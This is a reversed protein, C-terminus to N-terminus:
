KSLTGFRMNMRIRRSGVYMRVTQQASPSGPAVFVVTFVLTQGPSLPGDTMINNIVDYPITYNYGTYYGGVNIIRFGETRVTYDYGASTIKPTDGYNVKVSRFFMYDGTDALKSGDIFITSTASGVNLGAEYVPASNNGSPRLLDNAIVPDSFDLPITFVFDSIPTVLYFRESYVVSSPNSSSYTLTSSSFNEFTVIDNNTFNPNYIQNNSLNVPGQVTLIVPNTYQIQVDFYDNDLGYDYSAASFKFTLTKDINVPNPLKYICRYPIELIVRNADFTKIKFSFHFRSNYSIFSNSFLETILMNIEDWYTISPNTTVKVPYVFSDTVEFDVVNDLPYILNIIGTNVSSQNIGIQFKIGNSILATRDRYRSDVCIYVDKVNSKAGGGSTARSVTMTSRESQMQDSLMKMQANRLRDERSGDPFTTRRTTDSNNEKVSPNTNDYSKRM